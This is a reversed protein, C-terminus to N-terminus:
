KLRAKNRTDCLANHFLSLDDATKPRSLFWRSLSLDQLTLGIIGETAMLADNEPFEITYDIWMGNWEEDSLKGVLFSGSFFAVLNEPLNKLLLLLDSM